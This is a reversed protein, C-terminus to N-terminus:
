PCWHLHPYLHHHTSEMKKHNWGHKWYAEYEKAQLANFYIQRALLPVRDGKVQMKLLNHSQALLFLSTSNLNRYTILLFFFFFATELWNKFKIEMNLALLVEKGKTNKIFRKSRKVRRIEKCRRIDCCFFFFLGSLLLVNTRNKQLVFSYLYSKRMFRLNSM